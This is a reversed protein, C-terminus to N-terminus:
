REMVVAIAAPSASGPSTLTFDGDSTTRKRAEVAAELKATLWGRKEESAMSVYFAWVEAARALTGRNCFRIVKGHKSSRWDELSAVQGHLKQAQEYLLKHCVSNLYSHYYVGWNNANQKGDTDDPILTILLVNRAIVASDMDCCTIDMRRSDSYSAFLINRADGCGPLLIDAKPTEPPTNQTLCVAPSAASLISTFGCNAHAPTLM